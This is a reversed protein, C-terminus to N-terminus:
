QYRIFMIGIIAGTNDDTMLVSYYKYTNSITNTIASMSTRNVNSTAMGTLSVGTIYMNGAVGTTATNPNQITADGGSLSLASVAVIEDLKVKTNNALKVNTNNIYVAVETSNYYKNVAAKVQSASMKQQDYTSKVQSALESSLGELENSGSEMLNQALGTIAMVAAIIIITIFLGVAFMIAKQANDM